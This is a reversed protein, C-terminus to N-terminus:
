RSRGIRSLLRVLAPHNGIGYTTLVKDLEADGHERIVANAAKIDSDSFERMTAARWEDSTRDWYERRHNLEVEALREVGSKDLGLDAAVERLEGAAEYSQDIDLGELPDGADGDEDNDSKDADSKDTAADPKDAAVDAKPKAEAKQREEAAEKPYLRDIVEAAADPKASAAPTAGASGADDGYLIDVPDIM